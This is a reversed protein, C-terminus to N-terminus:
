DETCAFVTLIRQNSATLTAIACPMMASNPHIPIASMTSRQKTPASANGIAPANSAPTAIADGAHTTVSEAAFMVGVRNDKPNITKRITPIRALMSLAESSTVTIMAPSMTVATAWKPVAAIGAALMRETRPRRIMRNSSVTIPPLM